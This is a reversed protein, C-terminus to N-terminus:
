LYPFFLLYLFVVKGTRCLAVLICKYVFPQAGLKGLIRYGEEIVTTFKRLRVLVLLRKELLVLDNDNGGEIEQKMRTLDAFLLEAESSEM